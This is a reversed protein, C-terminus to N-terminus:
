NQLINFLPYHCKEAACSMLFVVVLHEPSPSHPPFLAKQLLVVKERGSLPTFFPLTRLTPCSLRTFHFLWLISVRDAVKLVKGKNNMYDVPILPVVLLVQM